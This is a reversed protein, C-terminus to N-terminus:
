NILKIALLFLACANIAIIIKAIFKAQSFKLFVHGSLATFFLSPFTSVGFCFMGFAALFPNSIAAAILFAGYLLGCPIFGLVLGLFYGKLGQPDQFLCSLKKSFNQIFFNSFFGTVSKLFPSKFLLSKKDFLMGLFFIAALFLLTASFFRFNTIESINKSLLSCFFGIISYTTIRGLQYPLLAMSELRKFNSFKELPVKQLRNSVQTLVFPGCMTICHSFGGFFGLSILSIILTLEHSFIM